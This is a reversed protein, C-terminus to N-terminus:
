DELADDEKEDARLLADHGFLMFLLQYMEASANLAGGLLSVISQREEESANDPTVGRKAYGDAVVLAAIIETTYGKLLPPIDAVRIM